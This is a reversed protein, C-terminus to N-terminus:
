EKIDYNIPETSKIVEQLKELGQELTKFQGIEEHRDLGIFDYGGFEIDFMLDEFPDITIIIQGSSMKTRGDSLKTKILEIIKDIEQM